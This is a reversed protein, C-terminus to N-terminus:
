QTAIDVSAVQESVIINNQNGPTNFREIRCDPRIREFHSMVVNEFSRSKHHRPKFRQLGADTEYRTYFSKPMPQCRSHPYLQSADIRVIWKCLSTSKGTHTEDVVSKRTFVVSPGGVMDERVKSQLDKDNETFPSFKASASVQLFINPLISFACGLKPM